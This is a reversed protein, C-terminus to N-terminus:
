VISTHHNHRKRLRMSLSILMIGIMVAYIGFLMTITIAGAIPNTLILIGFLITLAGGLIYWGEGKIMRALRIAMTIEVLGAILSWFAIMYIVATATAFPHYFTILGIVIGTIGSLLYWPWDKLTKRAGLASLVSFIGDIFLYAGLFIILSTFTVGPAFLALLGLLLAIVGRLLFMWWYQSFFNIM